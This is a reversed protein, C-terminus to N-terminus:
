APGTPLQAKDPALPHCAWSVCIVCVAALGISSVWTQTVAPAYKLRISQEPIIITDLPSLGSESSTVFYVMGVVTPPRRPRFRGVTLVRLLSRHCYIPTDIHGHPAFLSVAVFIFIFYFCEETQMSGPIVELDSISTPSPPVFGSKHKHLISRFKLFCTKCQLFVWRFCIKYHKKVSAVFCFDEKM